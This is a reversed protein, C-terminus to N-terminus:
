SSRPMEAPRSIVEISPQHLEVGDPAQAMEVVLGEVEIVTEPLLGALAVILSADEVIVQVTGKGDRLVVFTRGALQRQHHLWGAVRVREGIREALRHSWIAGKRSRLEPKADGESHRQPM